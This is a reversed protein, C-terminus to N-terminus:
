AAKLGKPAGFVTNGESLHHFKTYEPREFHPPFTAWDVHPPGLASRHKCEEHELRVLDNASVPQDLIQPAITSRCIRRGGEVVM